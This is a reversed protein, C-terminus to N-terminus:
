EHPPTAPSPLERGGDAVYKAWLADIKHALPVGNKPLEAVVAQMQQRTDATTDELTQLRRMVGPREAVGDRAPTGEFDDLFRRVRGVLHAAGRLAKGGLTAIVGVGVLTTAGEAALPLWAASM